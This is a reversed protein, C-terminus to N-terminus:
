KCHDFTGIHIVANPGCGISTYACVLCTYHTNAVVDHLTASTDSVQQSTSHGNQATCVVNYGLLIGNHSPEPLSMWSVHLTLNAVVEALLGSPGASPAVSLSLLM